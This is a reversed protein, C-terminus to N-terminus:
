TVPDRRFAISTIPVDELNAGGSELQAVAAVRWHSGKTAPHFFIERPMGRDTHTEEYDGLLPKLVAVTLRADPALDLELTYPLGSDPYRALRAARVGPIMPRLEIPLLGGADEAVSGVRGAVQAVSLPDQALFRIMDVIQKPMASDNKM